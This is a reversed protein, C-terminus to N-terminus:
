AFPAKTDDIWYNIWTEQYKGAARGGERYVGFNGIAPWFLSFGKALGSFPIYYMQTALYRQLDKAMPRRAEADFEGRIKNVYDIVKPDGKAENGPSYWGHYSGGQPLFLNRIFAAPDGSASDPVAAIGKYQGKSDAYHPLWDTQYDPYSLNTKYGIDAFMGQAALAEEEYQAWRTTFFMDETMGDPYGAAALLKKAEDPNYQFFQGGEGMEPSKPDIWWGEINAALHSNWRTPVELGLAEFDDASAFADLLLDRDLAMSVAKRLRDDTYITGDKWGFQWCMFGSPWATAQAMKLAPTDDLTPLIDTPNITTTFINGARFQALRAAYDPVIPGQVEDIFPRDSIYWNPNRKFSFSVSPEYKDLYWAGSGRTDAKPDFGGDAERPQIFLFATSALDGLIAGDPFALDVVITAKDPATMSVISADPNVSNDLNGRFPHLSRFKEWSFLIDDADVPRSNTPARQDWKANNRLKLTVKTGGDTVEFSEALDGEVDGLAPEMLGYKTKLLRSYVFGSVLETANGQSTLM